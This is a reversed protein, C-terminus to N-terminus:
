LKVSAFEEYLPFNCEGFNKVQSPPRVRWIERYKLCELSAASALSVHIAPTPSVAATSIYTKSERRLQELSPGKLILISLDSCTLLFCFTGFISLLDSTM